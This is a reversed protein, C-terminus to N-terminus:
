STLIHATKHQARELLSDLLSAASLLGLEELHLRAKELEIM